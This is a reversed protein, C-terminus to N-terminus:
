LSSITKLVLFPKAIKMNSLWKEDYKNV